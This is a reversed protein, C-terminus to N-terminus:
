ISDIPVGQAVAHSAAESRTSHTTFSSDVRAELLVSKIWHSISSASVHKFTAIVGLLLFHGNKENRKVDTTYIYNGLCQVPCILPDNLKDVLVTRLAGGRQTESVTPSHLEAGLSQSINRGSFADSAKKVISDFEIPRKAGLFGVAVGGRECGMYQFIESPTPKSQFSREVITERIATAGDPHVRSAGADLVADVRSKSSATHTTLGM